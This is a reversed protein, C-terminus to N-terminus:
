QEPLEPWEPGEPIDMPQTGVPDYDVAYGQKLDGSVGEGTISFNNVLRHLEALTKVLDDSM